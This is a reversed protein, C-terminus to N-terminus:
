EREKFYDFHMYDSGVEQKKFQIYNKYKEFQEQTMNEVRIDTIFKENKDYILFISAWFSSFPKDNIFDKITM